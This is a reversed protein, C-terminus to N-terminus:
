LQFALWRVLGESFERAFGPPQSQHLTAGARHGEVWQAFRHIDARHYFAIMLEYNLFLSREDLNASGALAVDEDIIVAKAHIM